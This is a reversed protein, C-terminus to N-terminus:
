GTGSEGVAPVIGDACRLVRVCLGSVDPAFAILGPEFGLPEYGLTAVGVIAGTSDLLPGGVFATGLVATHQIGVGSQDILVGPSATAGQGGIGSMAFVRSGLAETQAADSALELTPIEAGTVVVALDREADWAWLTATIRESGKVLAIEPGPSTTSAQVLSLSTVLATGGEHGTVAFASGIVPRGAEDLSQLSWVSPGATAPLEVIGNQESVFEGLPALEARVEEVSDTRLQDLAGTADTFQEDFGEVFRAVEQENEALRNDYYAYFGAGAFAAGIGLATLMTAIGIVTRPLIRHRRKQQRPGLPVFGRRSWRRSARMRAIRGPPKVMPAVGGQRGRKKPVTPAVVSPAGVSDSADPDAVVPDETIPVTMSLTEELDGEVDDARLEDEPDFEVDPSNTQM